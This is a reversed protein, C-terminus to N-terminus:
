TAFFVFIIHFEVFTMFIMFILLGFYGTFIFMSQLSAGAELSVEQNDKSYRITCKNLLIFDSFPPFVALPFYILDLLYYGFLPVEEIIFVYPLFDMEDLIKMYGSFTLDRPLPFSKKYLVIYDLTALKYLTKM